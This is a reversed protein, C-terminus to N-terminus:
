ASGNGSRAPLHVSPAVQRAKDVQRAASATSAIIVSGGDTPHYPKGHTDRMGNEQLWKALNSAVRRGMECVNCRASNIKASSGPLAAREQPTEGMFAGIEVPPSNLWSLGQWRVSSSGEWSRM